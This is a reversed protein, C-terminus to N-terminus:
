DNLCDTYNTRMDDSKIKAACYYFKFYQAVESSPTLRTNYYQIYNRADVSGDGMKKYV